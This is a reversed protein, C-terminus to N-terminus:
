HSFTCKSLHLKSLVSKGSLLNSDLDELLIAYRVHGINLAYRPLNVYELENPMWVDNLKELDYLSRPLNIQDHLIGTPALKEIEYDGLSPDPFRFCASEELLDDISNLVKVGQVYDM